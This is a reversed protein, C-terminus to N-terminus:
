FVTNLIQSLGSRIKMEPNWELESVIKEKSGVRKTGATWDPPYLDLDLDSQLLDRLLFIVEKVTISEQSAVNYTNNRAVPARSMLFLARVCDNIHIFDMTQEGDGYLQPKNGSNILEITKNIVSKYGGQSFQNPGYIFFLRAICFELNNKTSYIRALNEGAVKSMGYHTRPLLLDTEKMVSPGLNGYAYLSSTFVLRKIRQKSASEFLADTATINTAIISKPDSGPSNYKTAALHFVFDCGYLIEDWESPLIAEIPKRILFVRPDLRTEDGCVLSDVVTIEAEHDKRLIYNSLHSGIFGAGGTIVYKM